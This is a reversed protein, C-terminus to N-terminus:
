VPDSRLRELAEDCVRDLWDVLRAREADETATFPLYSIGRTRRDLWFSGPDAGPGGTAALWLMTDAGQDASRLLPGMVTRFGPLGQEVGPTDVWGPHMAHMIVQTAWRAGLHRVLEVQARKAKAYAVAGRYEHAGMELSDVDLKQTYMGGSSMWLVRAGRRLQARLERTMLYPGALHSALTVEMDQSNTRYEDSLAGANHILIDLPGGAIIQEVAAMVSAPESTDLALGAASGPGAAGIEGAADDARDRDRSTVLVEAGLRVLGEATERGLGSTAGTVVARQGSLDTSPAEWHELRARARYGLKTFSGVVSMELLRDLVDIPQM